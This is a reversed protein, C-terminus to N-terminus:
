KVNLCYDICQDQTEFNGKPYGTPDPYFRWIYDYDTNNMGQEWKSPPTITITKPVYRCKEKCLNVAKQHQEWWVGTGILILVIVISFIIIKKKM